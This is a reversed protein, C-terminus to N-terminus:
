RRAYRALRARLYARFSAAAKIQEPSPARARPANRPYQKLDPEPDSANSTVPPSSATAAAVPVVPALAEIVPKTDAAALVPGSARRRTEGQPQLERRPKWDTARRLADKIEANSLQQALRGILQDAKATTEADDANGQALYAWQYAIVLHKPVTRGTAFMEALELQAGGHGQQAARWIWQFAAQADSTKAYQAGLMAQATPDGRVAAEYYPSGAGVPGLTPGATASAVLTVGLVVGTFLSRGMARM